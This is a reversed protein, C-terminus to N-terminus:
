THVAGLQCSSWDLGLLQPWLSPRTLSMGVLATALVPGVGPCDDLRLSMKNSRHWARIMRDFELIQEKLRHLQARSRCSVRRSDSSGGAVQILSFM